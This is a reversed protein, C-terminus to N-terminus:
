SENVIKGSMHHITLELMQVRSSHGSMVKEVSEADPYHKIGLARLISMSEATNDIKKMTGFIVVSKINLAWEDEKRFGEDMVCFSIKNNLALADIKHGETASHFYLKNNLYIHNMPLAYPYEDEGYIALVGRPANTLVEICEEKSLMQNKRRLPRFM